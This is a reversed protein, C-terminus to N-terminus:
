KELAPKLVKYIAEAMFYNGLDNPHVRDASCLDGVDSPFFDHGSIYYLNTDGESVAREFTNEINQRVAAYTPTETGYVPRSLMIIPIDPHATRVTKYFDYLTGYQSAAEPYCMMVFASLDRTAVYDAVAPVGDVIGSLGVNMVDANLMRGLINFFATSPRSVVAGQVISSGYFGITGYSRETPPAIEAEYPLGVSIMQVGAYLPLVITVEEYEGSLPVEFSNNGTTVIYQGGDAAINRRDTGTGLLVDIGNAGLLSFHIWDDKAGRMSVQVKMKSANTRFRITAGATNEALSRIDERYAGKNAADLRYYEGQNDDPHEIGGIAFRSSTCNLYVFKGDDKLYNPDEYILDEMLAYDGEAVNEDSVPPAFDGDYSPATDAPPETTIAETAGETIADTTEGNSESGGCAVLSLLMSMVLLITTVCTLIRHKM